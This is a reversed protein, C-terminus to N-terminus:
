KTTTQTWQTPMDEATRILLSSLFPNDFLSAIQRKSKDNMFIKGFLVFAIGEALGPKMDAVIIDDNEPKEFGKVVFSKAVFTRSTSSLLVGQSREGVPVNCESASLDSIIL